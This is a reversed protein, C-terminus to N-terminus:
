RRGNGPGSRQSDYEGFTQGSYGAGQVIRNIYEGATAQHEQVRIAFQNAMIDNTGGASAMMSIPSYVERSPDFVAGKGRGINDLYQQPVILRAKALRVDRQWSSYVEDLSDM